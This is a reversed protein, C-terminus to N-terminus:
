DRPRAVLNSALQQLNNVISPGLTTASHNIDLLVAPTVPNNDVYIHLDDGFSTAPEDCVVKHLTILYPRLYYVSRTNGDLDLVSVPLTSGMFELNEVNILPINLSSQGQVISADEPEYSTSSVYRPGQYRTDRTVHGYILCDIKGAIISKF